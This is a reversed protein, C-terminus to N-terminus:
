ILEKDPGNWYTVYGRGLQYIETHVDMGRAKWWEYESRIDVGGWGIHWIGSRLESPPPRDVKNLLIFSRETFLANSVGRFRVQIAGFMFEYFRLSKAPDTVNLHVHHFHAPEIEEPPNEAANNEPGNLVGPFIPQPTDATWAGQGILVLALLAAHRVRM